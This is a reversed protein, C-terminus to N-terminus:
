EERASLKWLHNPNIWRQEKVSSHPNVFTVEVDPGYSQSRICTVKAPVDLRQRQKTPLRFQYWATQGQYCIELRGRARYTASPSALLHQIQENTCPRRRLDVLIERFSTGVDNATGPRSVKDQRTMQTLLSRLAAPQITEPPVFPESTANGPSHQGALLCSLMVGLNYIDTQVTTWENREQEPTAYGPTLGWFAGGTEGSPLASAIGFDILKVLGQPTIMVNSPKIDRHLIIPDHTHLYDLVDCLQIAVALLKITREESSAQWVPEGPPVKSLWHRLEDGDVLEMVLYWADEDAFHDYYRPIQPHALSALLVPEREIAAILEPIEESAWDDLITQRIEKIAVLRKERACDQAVYVCRDPFKCLMELFQYREKLMTEGHFSM